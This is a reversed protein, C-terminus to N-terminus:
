EAIFHRCYPGDAFDSVHKRRSEELIAWQGRKQRFAINPAPVRFTKLLYHPGDKGVCVANDHQACGSHLSASSRRLRLM